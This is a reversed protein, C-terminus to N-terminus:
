EHHVDASITTPMSFDEFLPRQMVDEVALASHLSNFQAELLQQELVSTNLQNQTLDLRDILGADFQRQLKQTLQGQAELQAKLGHTNELSAEYAALSQGLDGITRAQLADFQAGEVERLQTAEAILTQNKNLLNLLASFGLSWISDGFEFAFGPTLSIDPTQKAVELKIKAEAAAYKELSRRIDLRNLLASTQLDRNKDPTNLLASQKALAEDLNLPKLAMGNFHELPLGVDTALNARIEALKAQENAVTFQTKQQRLKAASLEASSIAGLSLRKNLLDVLKTQIALENKLADATAINQHYRLLDKAILYQAEEVRIQRKNGTEIPIEVNFGYAWPRIDGNAQNSHAIHGGIIPNQKQAATKLSANALALQAKAVELKPHHYLACWTLENLGWAAFPLQNETYGQKILYAKFGDGTINKSLLKASTHAPDLRKAQYKEHACSAALLSLSLTVVLFKSQPLFNM